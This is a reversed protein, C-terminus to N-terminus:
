KHPLHEKKRTSHWIPKQLQKHLLYVVMAPCNDPYVLRVKPYGKEGLPPPRSALGKTLIMNDMTGDGCGVSLLKLERGPSHSELAELLHRSVADSQVEPQDTM